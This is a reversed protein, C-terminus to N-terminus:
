GTTETVPRGSVSGGVTDGALTLDVQLRVRRGRESRVLAALSTGQLADIRGQLERPASPPGLTVTSRRMTVGGGREPTGAIRVTLVGPPGDILRM